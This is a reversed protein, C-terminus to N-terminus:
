TKVLNPRFASTGMSTLIRGEFETAPLGEVDRYNRGQSQTRPFM